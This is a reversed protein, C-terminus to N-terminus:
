IKIFQGDGAEKQKNETKKLCNKWCIFSFFQGDLIHHQSEFGYGECIGYGSSWPDRGHANTDKNQM